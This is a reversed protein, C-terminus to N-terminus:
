KSSYLIKQRPKFQNPDIKCFYSVFLFFASFAFYFFLIFLLLGRPVLAARGSFRGVAWSGGNRFRYGRGRREKRIVRGWRNPRRRGRSLDPEAVAVGGAAGDSARWFGFGRVLNPWKYFGRSTRETEGRHSEVRRLGGYRRGHKALEPAVLYGRAGEGRRVKEGQV